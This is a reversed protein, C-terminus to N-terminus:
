SSWTWREPEKTTQRIFHLRYRAAQLRDNAEVGRVDRPTLRGSATRAAGGAPASSPSRTDRPVTAPTAAPSSNRSAFMSHAVFDSRGATAGSISMEVIKLKSSTALGVVWFMNMPRMVWRVSEALKPTANAISTGSRGLRRTSTAPATANPTASHRTLKWTRPASCERPELLAGVLEELEGGMGAEPQQQHREEEATAERRRFAWAGGSALPTAASGHPGAPRRHVNIRRHLWPGLVGGQPRFRGFGGTDVRM